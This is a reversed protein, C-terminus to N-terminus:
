KHSHSSHNTPPSFCCHTLFSQRKSVASEPSHEPETDDWDWEWFIVSVLGKCVSLISQIDDAFDLCICKVNRTFFLPDNAHRDDITRMLRHVSYIVITHYLIPEIWERFLKCSLYLSRATKYDDLTAAIELIHRGIELPIYSTPFARPAAPASSIAASRNSSPTCSM